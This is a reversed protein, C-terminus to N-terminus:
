RSLFGSGALVKKNTALAPIMTLVSPIILPEIILLVLV